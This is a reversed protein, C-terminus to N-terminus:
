DIVRATAHFVTTARAIWDIDRYIGSRVGAYHGKDAAQLIDAQAPTEQVGLERNL